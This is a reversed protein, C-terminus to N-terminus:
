KALGYVSFWQGLLNTPLHRLSWFDYECKFFSSLDVRLVCCVFMHLSLDFQCVGSRTCIECITSLFPVFAATSHDWFKAVVVVPVINSWFLVSPIPDSNSRLEYPAGRSLSLLLQLRSVRFGIM